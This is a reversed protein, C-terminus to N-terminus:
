AAAACSICMGHITVPRGTGFFEDLPEAPSWGAGLEEMRGCEDCILLDRDSIRYLTEGGVFAEKVQRTHALAHLERYVTSLGVRDGDTRLAAHLTQASVPANQAILAALVVSRYKHPRAGPSAQQETKTM